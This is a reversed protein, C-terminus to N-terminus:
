IQGNKYLQKMRNRQTEDAQNWWRYLFAVEVISFKYAINKSLEDVVSDITYQVGAFQTQM